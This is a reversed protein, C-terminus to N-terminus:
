RNYLESNLRILLKNASLELAVFSECISNSLKYWLPKNNKEIIKLKNASIKLLIARECSVYHIINSNKIINSSSSFISIPSLVALKAKKKQYTIKLQVAGRIIIYYSSEEGAKILTYDKSFKMLESNEILLDLEDETYSKFLDSTLLDSKNINMKDLTTLESSINKKQINIPNLFPNECMGCIKITNTINKYLNTLSECSKETIARIIKYRIEPYFVTLTDFYEITLELCHVENNAIVTAACPVKKILSVEGFFNGEELTALNLMDNGLTKAVVLANGKLIIYMGTNKKGQIFLFENKKFILINCYGKIIDLEKSNLYKFAKTKLLSHEYKSINM